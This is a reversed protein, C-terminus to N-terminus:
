RKPNRTKVSLKTVAKKKGGKYVVEAVITHAGNPILSTPWHSKFPPQEFRDWYKGDITLEVHEIEAPAVVKIAIDVGGRLTAGNRPQLIQVGSPGLYAKPPEPKPQLLVFAAAGVALVGVLGVPLAWKPVLNPSPPSKLKGTKAGGKLPATKGKGGKGPGRRAPGPAPAATACRFCMSAGNLCAPCHPKRCGKCNMDTVVGAHNTCHHRRAKGAEPGGKSLAAHCTMCGRSTGNLRCRDCVSQKCAPCTASGRKDPHYHCQAM